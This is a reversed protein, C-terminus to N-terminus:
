VEEALNVAENLDRLLSAWRDAGLGDAMRTQVAQWLPLVEALKRRGKATQYRRDPDKQLCHRIIRGLDPPVDRRLELISPPSERLIKGM